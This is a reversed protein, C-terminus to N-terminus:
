SWPREQQVFDNQAVFPSYILRCTPCPRCNVVDPWHQHPVFGAENAADNIWGDCHAWHRSTTWERTWLDATGTIFEASFKVVGLAAGRQTVLDQPATGCGGPSYGVGCWPEPCESIEELLGAPFSVDHEINIFTKGETWRQAFYDPYDTDLLSVDVGIWGYGDLALKTYPHLNAYPVFIPVTVPRRRGPSPTDM